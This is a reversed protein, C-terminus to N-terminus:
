VFRLVGFWYLAALIALTIALISICAWMICQAVGRVLELLFIQDDTLPNM